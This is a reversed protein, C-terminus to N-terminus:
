IFHLHCIHYMIQTLSILSLKLNLNIYKDINLEGLIIDPLPPYKQMDPVRDHVVALVFSTWLSIFFCYLVSLFTKFKEDKFNTELKSLDQELEFNNEYRKLCNGCVYSSLKHISDSQNTSNQRSFKFSEQNQYFNNNNHPQQHHHHSNNNNNNNNINSNQKDNNNNDNQKYQQQKQFSKIYYCLNKRDGINKILDKIDDEDILLLAKGNISQKEFIDVYIAYNISILWSKVDDISWNIINNLDPATSTTNSMM